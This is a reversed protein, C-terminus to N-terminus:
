VLLRKLEESAIFWQDRSEREGLENVWGVWHLNGNLYLDELSQYVYIFNDYKLEWGGNIFKFAKHYANIM